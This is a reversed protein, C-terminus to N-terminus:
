LKEAARLRASRSRPNTRMEEEGAQIPKKTLIRIDRRAEERFFRKVIRDELSHFSIVALRGSPKLIEIAEKLGHILNELENNVVIRLAQFTRTAPHIRGREYNKPVASSIINALDITKIIRQKKRALIIARAIRGAFREEGYKRILTALESEKYSNVIEAATIGEGGLRMDLPGEIRFSLGLSADELEESSVGLDMLIGVPQTIANDYAISKLDKFNGKVLILQKSYKEFDKKGAEIARQSLDIGLLRGGSGIKKLIEKAHGGVGFTCDIVDDGSKLNLLEIAEHLLVPVHKM